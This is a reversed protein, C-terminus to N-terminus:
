QHWFTIVLLMVVMVKTYVHSKLLLIRKEVKFKNWVTESGRLAGTEGEGRLFAWDWVSGSMETGPVGTMRVLEPPRRLSPDRWPQPSPNALPPEPTEWDNLGPSWFVGGRRRSRELWFVEDTRQSPSFPSVFGGWAASAGSVLWSLTSSSSLLPSSSFTSHPLHIDM